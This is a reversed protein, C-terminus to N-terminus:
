KIGKVLYKMDWGGIGNESLNIKLKKLYRLKKGNRLMKGLEDM